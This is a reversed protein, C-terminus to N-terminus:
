VGLIWAAENPNETKFKNYEGLARNKDMTKLISVRYM